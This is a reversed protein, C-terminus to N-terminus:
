YTGRARDIGVNRPMSCGGSHAGAPRYRVKPHEALRAAVKPTADTSCDDRHDSRPQALTQRLVSDGRGAAPGRRSVIVVVSVDPEATEPRAAAEGSV